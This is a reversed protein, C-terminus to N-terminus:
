TPVPRHLLMQEVTRRYTLTFQLSNTAMVVGGEGAPLRNSASNLCVSVMDLVSDVPLSVTLRTLTLRMFGSM